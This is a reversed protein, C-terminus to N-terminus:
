GVVLTVAMDHSKLLGASDTKRFTNLQCTVKKTPVVM